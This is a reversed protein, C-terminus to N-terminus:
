TEYTLRWYSIEITKIVAFGKSASEFFVETPSLRTINVRFIDEFGLPDDKLTTIITDALDLVGKRISNGMIAVETEFVEQFIHIAVRLEEKNQRPLEFRETGNDQLCIFPFKADNPAIERSPVVYVRGQVDAIKNILKQKIANLLAKM